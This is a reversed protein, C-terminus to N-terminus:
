EGHEADPQTKGTKDGSSQPVRAAPQFGGGCGSFVAPRDDPRWQVVEFQLRLFMEAQARGPLRKGFPKGAEAWRQRVRRLEIFGDGEMLPEAEIRCRCRLVVALAEGREGASQLRSQLLAQPIGCGVAFTLDGSIGALSAPQVSGNM